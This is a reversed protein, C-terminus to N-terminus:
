DRLCRVSYGERQYDGNRDINGSYYNLSRYWAFGIGYETSSWWYGYDGIQNFTGEFNRKGGPLGSFSSSNNGSGNDKWGSTSKMKNGAVDKGGLAYTLETWEDHSPVHWGVPCLGRPDSVAYWNYLKGYIPGNAPDNNYYCWAPQKNETAMKWEKSNEIYPILDGNRFHTGSFDQAMLLNCKIIVFTLILFLLIKNKMTKLIKFKNVTARIIKALNAIIISKL